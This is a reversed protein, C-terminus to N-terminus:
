EGRLAWGWALDVGDHVVIEMRPVVAPLVGAEGSLEWAPFVPQNAQGFWRSVAM